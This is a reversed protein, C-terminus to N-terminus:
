YAPTPSPRPNSPFCGPVFFPCRLHNLRTWSDVWGPIAPYAGCCGNFPGLVSVSRGVEALCSNSASLPRKIRYSCGNMAYFFQECEVLILALYCNSSM